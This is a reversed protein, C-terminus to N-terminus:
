GLWQKVAAMIKDATEDVAPRKGVTIAEDVIYDAALHRKVDERLNAHADDAKPARRRGSRRFKARDGGMDNM